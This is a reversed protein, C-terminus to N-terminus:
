FYVVLVFVSNFLDGGVGGYKGRMDAREFWWFGFGFESWGSETVPAGSESSRGRVWEELRAGEDVGCVRNHLLRLSSGVSNPGAWDWDPRGSAEFGFPDSGKVRSQNGASQLTSCLTLLEPAVAPLM